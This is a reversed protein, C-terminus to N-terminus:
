GPFIEKFQRCFEKKFSGMDPHDANLERHVSSVSVGELGCPTIHEFMSIDKVLNVAVGHYSVWHKVAIGISAIKGSKTYVGPRGATRFSKIGYISLLNIITQELSYFFTKLGGPKKEMRVVPYVVLQGPFHCTIDGGRSTKVLQIQKSRLYGESVLLNTKSHNRGLTIVPYHELLFVQEPNGCVVSRVAREQLVAAKDYSILGLDTFDMYVSGSKGHKQNGCIITLGQVHVGPLTIDATFNIESLINM